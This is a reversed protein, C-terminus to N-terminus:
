NFWNILRQWFSPEPGSPPFWCFNVVRDEEDFDVDIMAGRDTPRPHRGENWVERGKEVAVNCKRWMDTNSKGLIAIVEAKSMGKKLRQWNEWTIPSPKSASFFLFGISALLMLSLAVACVKFKGPIRM